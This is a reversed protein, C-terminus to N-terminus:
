SLVKIHSAMQFMGLKKFSYSKVNLAKNSAKQADRDEDLPDSYNNGKRKLVFDSKTINRLM